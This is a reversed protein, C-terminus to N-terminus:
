QVVNHPVQRRTARGKQDAEEAARQLEQALQFKRQVEEHNPGLKQSLILVDAEAQRRRAMDWLVYSQARYDQAEDALEQQSSGEPQVTRDGPVTACAAILTPAALVLYISRLRGM